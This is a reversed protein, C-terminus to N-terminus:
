CKHKQVLLNREIHAMTYIGMNPVEGQVSGETMKHYKLHFFFFFFFFLSLSLSLSLLFLNHYMNSTLGLGCM